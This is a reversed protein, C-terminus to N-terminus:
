VMWCRTNERSEVHEFYPSLHNSPIQSFRSQVIELAHQVTRMTNTKRVLNKQYSWLMEIPNFMHHYSPLRLVTHNHQAALEDIYYKTFLKHYESCLSFIFCMNM